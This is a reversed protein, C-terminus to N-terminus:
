KRVEINSLTFINITTVTDNGSQNKVSTVKPIHGDYGPLSKIQRNKNERRGDKM